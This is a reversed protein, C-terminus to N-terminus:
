FKSKPLCTNAFEKRFGMRFEPIVSEWLKTSNAFERRSGYHYKDRKSLGTYHFPDVGADL